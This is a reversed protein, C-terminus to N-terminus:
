LKTQSTNAKTRTIMRLQYTDASILNFLDSLEDSRSNMDRDILFKVDYGYWQKKNIIDSM